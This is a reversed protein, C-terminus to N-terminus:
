RGRRYYHQATSTDHTWCRDFGLSWLAQQQETTLVVGAPLGSIEISGDHGDVWLDAWEHDKIVGLRLLEDSLADEAAEKERVAAFVRQALTSM